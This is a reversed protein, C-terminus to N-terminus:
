GKTASFRCGSRTPDTFPGQMRLSSGAYTVPATWNQKIMGMWTRIFSLRNGNITGAISGTHGKNFEGSFATASVAHLTMGGQWQGLTCSAEWDWNGELSAATVQMPPMSRTRPPPRGDAPASEGSGSISKETKGLTGGTSGAQGLALSGGVLLLVVSLLTKMAAGSM